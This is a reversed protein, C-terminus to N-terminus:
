KVRYSAWFVIGVFVMALMHKINEINHEDIAAQASVVAKASVFTNFFIMGLVFRIGKFENKLSYVFPKKENM